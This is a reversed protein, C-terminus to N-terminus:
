LGAANLLPRAYDRILAEIEADRIVTPGQQAQAAVLPSSLLLAPSLLAALAARWIRPALRVKRPMTM